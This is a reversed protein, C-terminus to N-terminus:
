IKGQRSYKISFSNNYNYQSLVSSFINRNVQWCVPFEWDLDIGDFGYQQLIRVIYEAFNRRTSRPSGALRSYKDDNSDNWGGLGLLVKVGNRKRIEATKNLFSKYANVSDDIDLLFTEESLTVFAYIIHTCLRGNIDEPTFRGFSDRKWAWNTYYCIVKKGSTNEAVKRTFRSM